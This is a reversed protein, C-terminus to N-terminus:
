PRVETYPGAGLWELNNLRSWSDTASRRTMWQGALYTAQRGTSSEWIGAARAEECHLTDLVLLGQRLGAARNACAMTLQVANPAAVQIYLIERGLQQAYEIEEATGEGYYGDVDTVVCISESIRIRERHQERLATTGIQPGTALETRSSRVFPMLVLYDLRTLYASATLMEDYFRMSGCVTLLKRRAASEVVNPM